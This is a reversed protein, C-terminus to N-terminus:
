ENSEGAKVSPVIQFVLTNGPEGIKVPRSSTQIDVANFYEMCTKRGYSLQVCVTSTENNFTFIHQFDVSGKKKAIATAKQVDLTIEESQQASDLHVSNIIEVIIKAYYDEQLAANDKLSAIWVAMFICFILVFLIKVLEYRLVVTGKKQLNKSSNTKCCVM